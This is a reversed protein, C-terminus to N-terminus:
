KEVFPVSEDPKKHKQGQEWEDHAQGFTDNITLRPQVGEGLMQWLKEQNSYEADHSRDAGHTQEFLGPYTNAIESAVTDFGKISNYDGGNFAPHNQTFPKGTEASLKAYADKVATNRLDVQKNGEDRLTRAYTTIGKADKAPVGADKLKRQLAAEKTPDIDPLDLEDKTFPALVRAAVAKSNGGSSVGVAQALTYLADKDPTYVIKEALARVQEKTVKSPDAYMARFEDILPKAKKYGTSTAVNWKPPEAGPLIAEGWGEPRPKMRAATKASMPKDDAPKSELEKPKENVQYTADVADAKGPWFKADNAAAAKKFADSRRIPMKTGATYYGGTVPSQTKPSGAPLTYFHNGAKDQTVAAAPYKVGDDGVIHDSKAPQVPALATSKGAGEPPGWIKGGKPGTGVQRWGPPPNPGHYYGDEAFSEDFPVAGGNGGGDGLDPLGAMAGGMGPGPPQQMGLSKILKLTELAQQPNKAMQRRYRRSLDQPDQILGLQLLGLDIDLAAKLDSDNIGGFWATPYEADAYNLDVIDPIIQDNVVTAAAVSLYWVFLETTSKHVSSKGSGDPVAGAMAQLTAGQIGIFCEEQLAKIAADFDTGSKSAMEIAEVAAGEPVTLYGLAKAKKVAENISDRIDTRGNPYKSLFIPLTFRELGIARLKWVTDLMWGARYVARLDSMGIPNSFGPMHSWFTFDSMPFEDATRRSIVTTPNNFEDIEIQYDHSDKAKIKQITPRGRYKGRDVKGFVKEALGNGELLAGFLISWIIEASGGQCRRLSDEVFSAIAKDRPADSAPDVQLDLSMVSLLKSMFASKIAPEKLLWRYALRHEATEATLNDYYPLLRVRGARFASVLKESFFEVFEKQNREAERDARRGSFVDAVQGFASYMKGPIASIAQFLTTAM